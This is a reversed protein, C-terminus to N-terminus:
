FWNMVCMGMGQENFDMYRSCAGCFYSIVTAKSVLTNNASITATCNCIFDNSASMVCLGSNCPVVGPGITINNRCTAMNATALSNTPTACTANSNAIISSCTIAGNGVSAFANIPGDIGSNGANVLMIGSIPRGAVGASMARSSMGGNSICGYGGAMLTRNRGNRARIGAGNLSISGSGGGIARFSISRARARGECAIHGVAVDSTSRVGDSGSIDLVSSSSLGCNLRGLISYIGNGPICIVSAGNSTAVSLGGNGCIGIALGSSIPASLSPRIIRGCTPAVNAERLISTIANGTLDIARISNGCSIDVRITGVVNRAFKGRSLKTCIVSNGTLRINSSAMTRRARTDCGITTTMACVSNAVVTTTLTFAAMSHLSHFGRGGGRVVFGRRDTVGRPGVGYLFGYM